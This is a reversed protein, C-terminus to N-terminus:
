KGNKRNKVENPYLFKRSFTICQNQIYIEESEYLPANIRHSNNEIFFCLGKGKMGFIGRVLHLDAIQVIKQVKIVARGHRIFVQAILDHLIVPAKGAVRVFGPIGAGKGQIGLGLFERGVALPIETGGANLDDISVSAIGVVAFCHIVLNGPSFVLQISEGTYEGILGVRNVAQLYGQTVRGAIHLHNEEVAYKLLGIYDGTGYPYYVGPVFGNV